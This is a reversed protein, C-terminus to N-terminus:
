VSPFLTNIIYDPDAIQIDQTTLYTDFRKDEKYNGKICEITIQKDNASQIFDDSLLNYTYPSLSLTIKSTNAAYSVIYDISEYNIPSWSLNLSAKLNKIYLNKLSFCYGFADRLVLNQVLIQRKQQM